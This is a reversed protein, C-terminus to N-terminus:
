LLYIFCPRLGGYIHKYSVQIVFIRKTYQILNLSRVFFGYGARINDLFEFTFLSKKEYIHQSWFSLHYKVFKFAM